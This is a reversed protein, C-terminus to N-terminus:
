KIVIMKNTRSFSKSNLTYFYVGSSLNGSNFNLNYFGAEKFENVLTAINRGLVDYVMLTTYGSIPLEYDIRTAPNFPNPYNQSLYYHEPLPPTYSINTMEPIYNDYFYQVTKANNRLETISQLNNNGQAAIVAIVVEQTDGPAMTISGTNIYLQVDDPYFINQFGMYWGSSDVPNGSFPFKTPQGNIPNVFPTGNCILGNLYHYQQSAIKVTDCLGTFNEIHGGSFSTMKLDKVKHKWSNRIKASDSFMGEIKTGGLFLYGLAPPTSNYHGEDIEDGNYCYALNMLTDCGAYDDYTTGLDTDSWYGFVMSDITSNSKNIIRYSKFLVNELSSHTYGYVTLQIELGIPMTGFTYLTRNPDMDNMVCWLVEDGIFLPKDIGMTFKGDNNEDYFPAGDEGPWELYDKQYKDRTPGPPLAEWDKKIKYVRYKSLTPDDPLGSELIKGAQLGYRYTNGNVYLSDGIYGGWLLGDAFVLNLYANEGGPWLLGHSDNIPNHSGVGNNCIWMKMQNISIYEYDDNTTIKNLSNHSSNKEQAYLSLTCFLLAIILLTKM